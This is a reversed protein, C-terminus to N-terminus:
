ASVPADDLLPSCVWEVIEEDVTIKPAAPDPIDVQKTGVVVRECVVDRATNLDFRHPGFARRLWFWSDTAEKVWQGGIDRRIAAIENVDTCFINFSANPLPVDDHTDLMDAIARLGNVYDTRRTRETDTTSM